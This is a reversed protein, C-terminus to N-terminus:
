ERSSWATAGYEFRFNFGCISSGVCAVYSRCINFVQFMRYVLVFAKLLLLVEM